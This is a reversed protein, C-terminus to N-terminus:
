SAQAELWQAEASELDTNIKTYKDQVDSTETHPKTYFGDANMIIELEAKQSELKSITKELKAIAQPNLSKEAQTPTSAKDTKDKKKKEGKREERRAKITFKRYDELDGDFHTCASDKVLWLRDAVREIMNPDHSVIVIAGDYGNLAQVLAERADIDLHNTPEDLLLLHPADFSMFAFLLRAKEGGSLTSIKNDSLQRSFGFSGLKARVTPENVEPYKQRMIAMMEEYPTANVDLEETQHQSFYGIRLKNSRFLSGEMVDLKGAILKMMTSKGNGNAGLIAIRDDRDISEHINCLIPNGEAYGVDAKDISVMPSPIKDPNPFTFRMARDAIVADVIDMKELAKMRSQAQRAKSAKAKFRDVFQQMHERQAQQKEFMKQQLGLREAREREFTDYNGTYLTLQQKDVHVVHDICRNLVERDHSIILLTHPYAALYAELWMIAELDLHNTPEDLLLIEPEVFLAAALAVRMRWGGSFSSFPEQLQEEKFGLGTLLRSAKSPASYADLDSLKEYIEALKNPDEETETAKWLAALEEDAALVIDILSTDTEPIDQRVMGLKQSSPFSVTGGDAQLENAILKFLTSKGAGNLGIVGVKWNDIISISCEDLITRSGIKYTLNSINLM